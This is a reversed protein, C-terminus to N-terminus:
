EKDLSLLRDEIKKYQEQIVAQANYRPFISPLVFNEAEEGHVHVNTLPIGNLPTFDDESEQRKFPPALTVGYLHINNSIDRTKLYIDAGAPTEEAPIFGILDDIFTGHVMSEHDCGGHFRLDKVVAEGDLWWNTRIIYEYNHVCNIGHQDPNLFLADVEVKVKRGRITCEHKNRDNEGKNDAFYINDAALAENTTTFPHSAVYCNIEHINISVRGISPLCQFQYVSCSRGEAFATYPLLFVGLVGLVWKM